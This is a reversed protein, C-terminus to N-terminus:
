KLADLEQQLERRAKDTLDKRQLNKKYVERLTAKEEPTMEFDMVNGIAKLAASETRLSGEPFQMEGMKGDRVLRSPAAEMSFFGTYEGRSNFIDAYNTAIESRNGEQAIYTGNVLNMTLYSAQRNFEAAAANTKRALDGIEKAEAASLTRRTNEVLRPVLHGASNVGLQLRVGYKGEIGDLVSNIARYAEVTGRSAALKVNNQVEEPAKKVKEKISTARKNFAAPDVDTAHLRFANSIVNNEAETLNAGTLAKELVSEGRTSIVEVVPKYEEAPMEGRSVEGGQEALRVNYLISDHTRKAQGSLETNLVVRTKFLDDLAEYAAPNTSKLKEPMLMYTQIVEPGYVSMEQVALRYADMTKQYGEKGYKAVAGAMMAFSSDNDWLAKQSDYLTKIDAKLSNFTEDDFGHTVRLQVLAANAQANARELSGLMQGRWMTSETEFQAPDVVGQRSKELLGNFLGQKFLNEATGVGTDFSMGNFLAVVGPRLEQASVNGATANQELYAQAQTVQARAALVEATQRELQKYLAPNTNYISFVNSTTDGTVEAIKKITDKLFEMEAKAASDDGAQGRGFREAVYQTAAWRDAGPLGAVAGISQRIQDALGPYRAITKKALASIRSEYETNSMGGTAAAQLRSAQSQLEKLVGQEQPSLPGVTQLAGMEGEITGLAEQARMAGMNTELFRNSIYEADVEAQMLDMRKKTEYLSGAAGVTDVMARGRMNIAQVMSSPDAMAPNIDQTIDRQYM